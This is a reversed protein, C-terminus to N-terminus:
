WLRESYPRRAAEVAIGSPVGLAITRVVPISEPYAKGVRLRVPIGLIMVVKTPVAPDLLAIPRVLTRVFEPRAPAKVYVSAALCTDLFTKTTRAILAAHTQVM